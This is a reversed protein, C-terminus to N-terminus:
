NTEKSFHIKQTKFCNNSTSHKINIDVAPSGKTSTIVRFTIVSGDQMVTYKGKKNPLNSEIGGYAITDYLKQAEAIPDSAQVERIQSNGSLGVKGIYGNSVPYSVKIMAYNEQLKRYTLSRGKYTGM